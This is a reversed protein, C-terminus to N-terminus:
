SCLNQGVVVADHVPSGDLNPVKHSPRLAGQLYFVQHLSQGLVSSLLDLFFARTTAKFIFRAIACEFLDETFVGEVDVDHNGCVPAAEVLPTWSSSDGRVEKPTSSRM